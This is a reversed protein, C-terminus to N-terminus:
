GAVLTYSWLPGTTLALSGVVWASYYAWRASDTEIRAAVTRYQAWDLREGGLADWIAQAWVWHGFFEPMMLFGVSGTLPLLAFMWALATARFDWHTYNFVTSVVLVVAAFSGVAVLWGWRAGREYRDRGNFDPATEMVRLSLHRTGFLVGIIAATLLLAAPYWEVLLLGDVYEWSM